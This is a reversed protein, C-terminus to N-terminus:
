TSPSSDTSCLQIKYSDALCEFTSDHFTIIFHRGNYSTCNPFCKRNQKSIETLWASEVVEFFGYFGLGKSYLPHGALAEDNPYGFKTCLVGSFIIEIKGEPHFEKDGSRRVAEFSLTATQEDQYLIPNPCDAIPFINEISKVREAM